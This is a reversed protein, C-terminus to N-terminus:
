LIAVITSIGFMSTVAKAVDHVTPLTEVVEMVQDPELGWEEGRDAFFLYCGMFLEYIWGEVRIHITASESRVVEVLFPAAPHAM